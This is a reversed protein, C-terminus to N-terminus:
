FPAIKGSSFCMMFHFRIPFFFFLLSAPFCRKEGLMKNHFILIYYISLCNWFRFVVLCMLSLYKQNLANWELHEPHWSPIVQPLFSYTHLPRLNQLKPCDWSKSYLSTHYAGSSCFALVLQNLSYRSGPLHIQYMIIKASNRKNQM